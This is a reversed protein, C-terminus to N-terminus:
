ETPKAVTVKVGKDYGEVIITSAEWTFVRFGDSSVSQSEPKGHDAAVSDREDAVEAGEKWHTCRNTQQEDLTCAFVAIGGVKCGITDDHDIWQGRQSECIARAERSTAGIEPFKPNQRIAALVRRQAYVAALEAEDAREREVRRRRADREAERAEAREMYEINDCRMNELANAAYNTQHAMARGAQGFANATRCRGAASEDCGGMAFLLLAGGWPV